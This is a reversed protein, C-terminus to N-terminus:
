CADNPSETKFRQGFNEERIELRGQRKFFGFVALRYQM